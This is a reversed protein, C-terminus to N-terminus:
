LRLGSLWDMVFRPPPPENVTVVAQWHDAALVAGHSVMVLGAVPVPMLVIPKRASGFGDGASRLPEMVMPPPANRTVCAPVAQLRFMEVEASSTVAAQPEPLKSTSTMAPQLQVATEFAEQIVKVEAALPPPSADSDKATAGLVVGPIRVPTMVTPLRWNVTVCSPALQSSEMLGAELVATGELANWDDIATVVVQWHVAWDVALKMVM